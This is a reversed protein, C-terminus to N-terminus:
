RTCLVAPFLRGVKKTSAHSPSKGGAGLEPIEEVDVSYVFM